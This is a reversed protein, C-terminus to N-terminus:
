IRGSAKELLYSLIGGLLSGSVFTVLWFVYKKIEAGRDADKVKQVEIWALITRINEDMGPVGNGYITKHQHDLEDKINKIDDEVRTHLEVDDKLFKGFQNKTVYAAM